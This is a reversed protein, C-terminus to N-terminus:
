NSEKEFELLEIVNGSPDSIAIFQGAPFKKPESHLFSVDLDILVSMTMSLNSTAIGLVIQSTGPYKATSRQEVKELIIDVSDNEIHILSDSRHKMDFGLKNCYFEEAERLDHVYITVACVKPM